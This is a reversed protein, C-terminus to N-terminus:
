YLPRNKAVRMESVCTEISSIKIRGEHVKALALKASEIDGAHCFTGGIRQNIVENPKKGPVQIWGEYLFAAYTAVAM